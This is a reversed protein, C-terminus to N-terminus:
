GMQPAVLYQIIVFASFALVLGIVAGKVTKKAEETAADDGFTTIMKIGAWILAVIAFLGLFGLIFNATNVLFEILGSNNPISIKDDKSLYGVIKEISIIVIMGATTYIIRKKVKGLEDESEGSLILKFASLVLLLTGIAVTLTSLFKFIGHIESVANKAYEEVRDNNFIDGEQGFFAFDILNPILLILSFGIGIAMIQKKKEKYTDESGRSLFLELGAYAIWIILIPVLFKQIFKWLNNVINRLMKEGEEPTSGDFNVYDEVYEPATEELFVEDSSGVINKALAVSISNNFIFIGMLVGLLFKKM